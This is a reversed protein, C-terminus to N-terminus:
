APLLDSRLATSNPDIGSHMGGFCSANNSYMHRGLSTAFYPYQSFPDVFAFASLSVSLFFHHRRRLHSAPPLSPPCQSLIPAIDVLVFRSPLIYSCIPRHSCLFPFFVLSHPWSVLFTVPLSLTSEHRGNVHPQSAQRVCHFSSSRLPWSHTQFYVLSFNCYKISRSRAFSVQAPPPLNLGPLSTLTALRNVLLKEPTAVFCRPRRPATLVVSFYLGYVSQCFSM